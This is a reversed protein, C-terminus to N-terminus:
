AWALSTAHIRTEKTTQVQNAWEIKYRMDTGAAGTFPINNATLIIKNTGWTGVDTLAYDGTAEDWAAGGNRSVFVKLDTGLTPATGVHEMLMVIDGTTPSTLATNATSIASGAAHAVTSFYAVTPLDFGASTWREIGVSLRFEEIHGTPYWTNPSGWKGFIQM